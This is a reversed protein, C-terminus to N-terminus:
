LHDHCSLKGVQSSSSSVGATWGMGPLFEKIATAKLDSEARWGDNSNNSNNSPQQGLTGGGPTWERAATSLGDM